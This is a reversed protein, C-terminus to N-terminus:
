LFSWYIRLRLYGLNDGVQTFQLTAKDTINDEAFTLLTTVGNILQATTFLNTATHSLDVQITVSDDSECQISDIVIVDDTWFLTFEDSLTVRRVEYNQIMSNKVVKDIIDLTYDSTDSAMTDIATNFLDNFITTDIGGGDNQDVFFLTSGDEQVFYITDNSRYLTDIFLQADSVNLKAALGTLLQYRTATNGGSGTTDALLRDNSSNKDWASTETTEVYKSTDAINPITNQKANIRDSLSLTDTATLKTNIRNSLSLTDTATLKTNIRNSLSLTDTSTLKTNIRNSLSLTDVADLKNKVMALTDKAAQTLTAAGSITTDVYVEDPSFAGSGGSITQFTVNGSGDTVLAQGPSGDTEPFRYEGVVEFTRLTQIIGENYIPFDGKGYFHWGQEVRAQDGFATFDSYYAYVKPMTYYNMVGGFRFVYGYAPMPFRSAVATKGVEDFFQVKMGIFDNWNWDLGISDPLDGVEFHINHGVFWASSPHWIPTGQGDIGCIMNNFIFGKLTDNDYDARFEFANNNIHPLNYPPTVIGGVWFDSYAGNNFFFQRNPKGLKLILSSSNDIWNSGLFSLQNNSVGNITGDVDLNGRIGVSDSELIIKSEAPTVVLEPSLDLDNFEERLDQATDALESTTVFSDPVQVAEINLLAIVSDVSIPLWRGESADYVAFDYDNYGDALVFYTRGSDTLNTGDWANLVNEKIKFAGTYLPVVLNSDDADVSILDYQYIGPALDWNDIRRVFVEVTTNPSSYTATIQEADGGALLNRRYILRDLSDVREKKVTFYIKDASVDKNKITFSFTRISNRYIEVDNRKEQAILNSYQTNLLSVFLLVVILLFVKFKPSQVKSMIM